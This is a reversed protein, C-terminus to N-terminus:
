SGGPLSRKPASEDPQIPNTEEVKDGSGQSSVPPTPQEQRYYPARRQRSEMDELVRDVIPGVWSMNSLPQLLPRVVLALLTFLVTAGFVTGLGMWMGAIIRERISRHYALQERLLKNQEDIRESLQILVSEISQAEQQPTLNPQSSEESISVNTNTASEENV